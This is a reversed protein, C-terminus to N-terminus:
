PQVSPLDPLDPLHLRDRATCSIDEAHIANLVAEKMKAFVLPTKSGALPAARLAAVL